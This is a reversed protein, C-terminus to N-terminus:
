IIVRREDDVLIKYGETWIGVPQTPMTYKAKILSGAYLYGETYDGTTGLDLDGSFSDLKCDLVYALNVGDPKTVGIVRYVKNRYAIWIGQEQIIYGYYVDVNSQSPTELELPYVVSIPLIIKLSDIYFTTNNRMEIGTGMSVVSALYPTSFWTNTGVTNQQTAYYFNYELVNTTAYYPIGRKFKELNFLGIHIFDNMLTNQISDRISLIEKYSLPTSM